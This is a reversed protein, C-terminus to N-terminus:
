DAADPHIGNESKSLGKTIKITGLLCIVVGFVVQHFEGLKQESESGHSM